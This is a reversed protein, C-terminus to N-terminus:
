CFQTGEVTSSELLIYVTCSYKARFHPVGLKIPLARLTEWRNQKKNAGGRRSKRSLGCIETRLIFM